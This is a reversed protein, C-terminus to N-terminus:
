QLYHLFFDLQKNLIVRFVVLGVLIALIAYRNMYFLITKNIIENPKYHCSWRQIAICVPLYLLAMIEGFVRAEMINGVLLLTLFYFLAVYRIPQYNPPIYDYFAFWFLPLGAFCFIFFLINQDNLLWFLNVAFHTQTSQRFYWELFSGSQHAVLLFIIMRAVFWAIFAWTLPKIIQRWSQWHLAPILLVMLLASERNFTALFIFPILFFWKRQLCWLFGTILFFLTPTDYPYYFTAQEGITLRYNIVSMLPLLLIFLWSLWTATESAFEQQLLYKLAFFLLSTFGIELIFFAQSASLPFFWILFHGMAPLLLRQGFPLRATFDILKDPTADIYVGTLKVHLYAYALLLILTVFHTKYRFFITDV